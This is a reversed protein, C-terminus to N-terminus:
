MYLSNLNDGYTKVQALGGLGGGIMVAVFPRRYKMFVGFVSPETVGM